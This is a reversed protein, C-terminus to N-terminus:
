RDGDRHRLRAQLESSPHGSCGPFLSALVRRSVRHGDSSPRGPSGPFTGARVRRSVGHDESSPQGSCGPFHCTEVQSNGRHDRFFPSRLLCVPPQGGPNTVMFESSPRVSCGTALGARDGRHTGHDWLQASGIGPARLSALMSGSSPHMTGSSHRGPGLPWSPPRCPGRRRTDHDRLLAQGIRPARRSALM